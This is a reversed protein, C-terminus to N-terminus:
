SDRYGHVRPRRRRGVDRGPHPRISRRYADPALFRVVDFGTAWIIVDVPYELGSESVVRDPKVEVVREAVLEVNPKALTRFWGNDLLIRKGFPPYTPVVKPLLDQRHGLETEIHRTYFRRHGDNIANLSREPHPWEPDRQLTSHLKDNFAWSLRIRYWAHYLPLHQLLFRIPGPVDQRFREFPAAWQPSRQFVILQDVEDAIAPVVQMASAGTGIVAVRRGALDIGDTPWQATHAAPGAFTDAGTVNPMKPKNFAGVATIVVNATHHQESGDAGTAAVSWTRTDADYEASEVTTGFRIHPTVNFDHAVKVLYDHLEDRLAFYKTWDNKAFSYSYLHNPTDVGCGPYRNQRWTGGVGHDRELIVYPVGAEALRVAACIGSMGAGIIIARFGPPPDSRELPTTSQKIGLQERIMISYEAPVDDGISIRLMEVLMEDGPDSLAVPIGSRWGNIAALANERIEAQLHDPLGGTDNDGLGQSRTPQYPPEIWHRDGTLHVLVLLLTPINAIAVADAWHQDTMDTMDTMDPATTM